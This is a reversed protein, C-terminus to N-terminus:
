KGGLGHGLGRRDTSRRVRGDVPLPLRAAWWSLLVDDVRAGADQYAATLARGAELLLRRREAPENPPETAAARLLAAGEAWAVRDAPLPVELVQRAALKVADPALATGGYTRLAWATIPPSMLAAAIDWLRDVATHVAIVPTSPVWTGEEDVAAEVVRTQTAVVVKPVLRDRVWRVLAPDADAALRDLDVAPADFRRGAFRVPREGWAIRGPEILGSTVLRPGDIGDGVFPALGYFQDRFGATATALDAVTGSTRIPAAAPLDVAMAAWTPEPAFPVSGSPRVAAGRWRHVHDRQPEGRRFVPACVHVAADFVREGAVWLGELAARQLAANRIGAADRTALLSQPQILVLRGGPALLDLGALLFVGATDAYGRVAGGFDLRLRADNSRTRVTARELQNLFPPNGIVTDFTGALDSTTAPDLADAVRVHGEPPAVGAWLALAAESAATALPDVDLGWLHALAEAPGLGRRQLLRAAALLFVGGGCAPDCIRPGRHLGDLAIAALREAVDPPTYHAGSSRRTGAGLLAEHAVGVLEPTPVVGGPLPPVPAPDVAALAIGAPVGGVLRAVGALVASRDGGEREADRRLSALWRGLETM